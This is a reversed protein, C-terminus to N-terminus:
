GPSRPAPMCATTAHSTILIAPIAIHRERLLEILQLGDMCPMSDDVIM